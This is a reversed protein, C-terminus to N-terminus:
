VAGPVSAPSMLLASAPTVPLPSSEEGSLAGRSGGLDRTIKRSRAHNESIERSGGYRTLNGGSRTHNGWSLTLDGWIERSGTLGQWIEWSRILDQLVEHFPVVQPFWPVPQMESAQGQGGKELQEKPDQNIKYCSITKFVGKLSTSASYMKEKEIFTPM